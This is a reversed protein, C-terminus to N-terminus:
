DNENEKTNNFFDQHQHYYGLVFMGQEELALRLPFASISDAIEGKLREKYKEYKADMQVLTPFVSSPTTMASSFFKDKITANLKSNNKKWFNYEQSKELAAFLRGLLYAQSKNEKDLAVSVEKKKNRTLYAKIVAARNPNIERDARVRELIAAHLQEPLMGGTMVSQLTLGALLPSTNEFKKQVATEALIQKLPKPKFGDIEMANWFKALNKIFAGFSDKLFFRISIRAANPSLGLIYFNKEADLNDFPLKAGTKAAILIDKILRTRATDLGDSKPPNMLMSFMEPYGGDKDVAWFAVTADGIYIKNSDCALLKNLAAGYKFAATEGVPSNGGQKKGFSEFAPMNFNVINAGMGGADRVGKINPHLRAIEAKDGSVLCIGPNTKSRLGLHNDWAQRAAGSEHIMEGAQNMFVITGSELAADTWGNIRSFDFDWDNFFDCVLKADADKSDGLLDLHLKKSAEFKKDESIVDGKGGKATNGLLKNRGFFYGANDCLFYPAIGATRTEQQPVVVAKKEKGARLDLLTTNEGLVLGWSADSEMWGFRPMDDACADYYECLAQLIM